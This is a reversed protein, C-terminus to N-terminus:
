TEEELLLSEGEEITDLSNLGEEVKGILNVMGAARPRDDTSIPTPGFFIAVAPGDPWFAVDGVEMTERATEDLDCHFPVEFYVEKGWRRATARLPLHSQLTKATDTDHLRIRASGSRWRLTVSNM